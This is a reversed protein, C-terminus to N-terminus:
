VACAPMDLTLSHKHAYFPRPFPAHQRRQRSHLLHVDLRALDVGMDKVLSPVSFHQLGSTQEYQTCARVSVGHLLAPSMMIHLRCLLRLLRLKLLTSRLLLLLLLSM